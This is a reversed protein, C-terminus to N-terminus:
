ANRLAFQLAARNRIGHPHSGSPSFHQLSHRHCAPQCFFQSDRLHGVPIRYLEVLVVVVISLPHIRFIRRILFPTLMAAGPARSDQCERSFLLVLSSHVFFILVGFHGSLLL